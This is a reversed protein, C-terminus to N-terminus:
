SFIFSQKGPTWENSGPSLIEVSSLWRGNNNIGGVVVTYHTHNVKDIILGATHLGRGEKLDPGSQWKANSFSYVYTAKSSQNIGTRGGILKYPEDEQVEILAHCDVAVPLDPGHIISGDRQIIETSKIIASGNWGGTVWLSQGKPTTAAHSRKGKLQNSFPTITKDM